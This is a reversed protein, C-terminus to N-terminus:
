GAAESYFVGSHVDSKSSLGCGLQLERAVFSQQYLTLNINTCSRGLDWKRWM